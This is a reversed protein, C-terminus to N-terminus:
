IIQQFSYLSKGEFTNSPRINTKKIRQTLLTNLRDSLEELDKCGTMERGKEELELKIQLRKM